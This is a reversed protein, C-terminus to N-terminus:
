QISDSGFRNPQKCAAEWFSRVCDIFDPAQFLSLRVKAQV